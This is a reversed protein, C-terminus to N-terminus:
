PVIRWEDERVGPLFAAVEPLANHTVAWEIQEALQVMKLM